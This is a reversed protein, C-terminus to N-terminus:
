AVTTIDTRTITKASTSGFVTAIVEGSWTESRKARGTAATTATSPGSASAMSCRTRTISRGKPTVMPSFWGIREAVSSIRPWTSRRWWSPPTALTSRSM